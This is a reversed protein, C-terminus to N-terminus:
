YQAIAEAIEEETLNDHNVAVVGTDIFKISMSKGALIDLASSVGNYGMYYQRQLVTAASYEESEVLTKMEDSYDFGTISLDTRENEIIYSSMAQTPGNNTGFLGVIEPHEKMYEEILEAALESDGNSNMVDSNTDWNDPAYTSWYQFFGALRETITQSTASGVMIGITVSDTDSYGKKRLLNILEEGAVYGAKFNETMYCVDYNDSNVITDILIIPIDKAYAEDIDPVLEISDDPSIIIADANRDIADNILYQQGEWDTDIHTGGCYINCKLDEGADQAGKIISKWYKTDMVKVILYIDPRNDDIDTLPEFTSIDLESSTSDNEDGAIMSCGCLMVIIMLVSIIRFIKM